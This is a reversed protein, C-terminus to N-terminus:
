KFQMSCWPLTEFLGRGPAAMSSALQSRVGGHVTLAKHLESVYKKCLPYVFRGFALCLKFSLSASLHLMIWFLPPVQFAAQLMAPMQAPALAALTFILLVADASGKGAGFKNVELPTGIWDTVILRKRSLALKTLHGDLWTQAMGVPIPMDLCIAALLQQLVQDGTLPETLRTSMDGQAIYLHEM